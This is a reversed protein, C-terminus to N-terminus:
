KAAAKLAAFRQRMEKLKDKYAENSALDREEYPDTELHFLQEVGHEPWYFYKWDTRVLAESAPIFDADRLTPHEYFFETRWNPKEKGLYLPSLDRGQMSAAPELGAAALITSALDVNLAMAAETTNKRSSCMRPDKIILPVRISEEHPYWKDALGHEGHYFGNDTTFIVLTNELVGQRELEKLIRGSTADIETILRFYNKMMSQYKGPTDFRWRWRNRGENEENFFDPLREWAAQTASPPVPIEIGDYLSLSEPQPLFQLPHGDEAHPTFFAVTLYFPQDKPRERLFEMADQENRQTIHTEHEDRRNLRYWHKGHYERGFDFQDEPFPRNHWKGVHGLFYGNKRLLALYSEEWPTEWMKFTRNGHRSMWQGTYLSARSVGCISTTVYSNIFRVGQSALKDLHPTQVVPHGAVGLVDDRWDDAYLVLINPKDAAAGPDDAVASHLCLLLLIFYFAKQRPNRSKM